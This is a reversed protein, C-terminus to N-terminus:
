RGREFRLGKGDMFLCHSANDEDFREYFFLRPCNPAMGPAQEANADHDPIELTALLLTSSEEEPEVRLAACQEPTAQLDLYVSHYEGDVTSVVLLGQETEVAFRIDDEEAYGEPDNGAALFAEVAEKVYQNPYKENQILLM